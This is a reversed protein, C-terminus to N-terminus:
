WSFRASLEVRRNASGGGGGFFGFGGGTSRSRGFSPSTLSGVPTSYNVNNFLNNVNIGITLNYPKAENGGGFFGGGGMMVAGGGGGGRRNGGGGQRNGSTQNGQQNQNTTAVNSSKSGGFGFTKSLNLNVNFTGPGRGYNRPIIANPDSVGSIDCYSDTLGL